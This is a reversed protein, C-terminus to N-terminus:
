TVKGGVCPCVSPVIVSLPRGADDFKLGSVIDQAGEAQERHRLMDEPYRDFACIVLTALVVLSVALAAVNTLWLRMSLSRIWHSLM